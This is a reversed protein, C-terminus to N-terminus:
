IKSLYGEYVHIYFFLRNVGFKFNERERKNTEIKINVLVIVFSIKLLSSFYLCSSYYLLEFVCVCVGVCQVFYVEIFM